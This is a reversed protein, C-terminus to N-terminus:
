ARYKELLARADAPIPIKELTGGEKKTKSEAARVDVTSTLSRPSAPLPPFTDVMSVSKKSASDSAGDNRKKMERRDSDVISRWWRTKVFKQLGNIFIYTCRGRVTEFWILGLKQFEDIAKRFTEVAVQCSIAACRQDWRRGGPLETKFIFEYGGDDEFSYESPGSLSLTALTEFIQMRSHHLENLIAKTKTDLAIPQFCQTKKWAEKARDKAKQLAPTEYCRDERVGLVPVGQMKEGLMFGVQGLARKRRYQPHARNTAIM